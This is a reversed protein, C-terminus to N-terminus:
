RRATCRECRRVGYQLTLSLALDLPGLRQKHGEKVRCWLCEGWACRKVLWWISGHLQDISMWSPRLALTWSSRLTGPRTVACQVTCELSCDGLVKDITFWFWNLGLKLHAPQAPGRSIILTMVEWNWAYHRYHFKRRGPEGGGEAAPRCWSYREVSSHPSRPDGAAWLVSFIERREFINEM